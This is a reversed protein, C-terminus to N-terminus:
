RVSAQDNVVKDNIDYTTLKNKVKINSFSNTSEMPWWMLVKFLLSSCLTFKYRVLNEFSSFSRDILM